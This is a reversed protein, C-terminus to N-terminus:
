PGIGRLGSEMRIKGYMIWDAILAVIGSLIWVTTPAFLLWGM